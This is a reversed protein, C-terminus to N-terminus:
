NKHKKRPNRSTHFISTIIVKNLKKDIVYVVIFPFPKDLSAEHNLTGKKAYLEPSSCILQLKTRLCFAFREGLGNQQEEYWWYSNLYEERAHSSLAYNYEM